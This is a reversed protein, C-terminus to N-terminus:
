VKYQNYGKFLFFFHISFTLSVFVLSLYIKAARDQLHRISVKHGMTIYYHKKGLRQVLEEQQTDM